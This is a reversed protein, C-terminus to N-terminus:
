VPLIHRPLLKPYPGKVEFPISLENLVTELANAYKDSRIVQPLMFFIKDGVSTVECVIHGEVIIVYDEIYDAVDGWDAFGSYNCIFTNKRAAKGTGSNNKEAYKMKNKAGSISDISEYYSLIEKLQSSSVSPDKQLLIQGRTMTGLKEMDWKLMTRDYDIFIQSLLDKHSYTLGISETPNHAIKAGIVPYKAPLVKDLMKATVVAFFSQVSANNQKIFRVIAKQRFSYIRYNADKVFPNFMGNIYDGYLMVPDKSESKYIPEEDSLMEYTPEDAEGPLLDEGPKRIGPADPEIGYRNKVYQYVNTMVWPQAGKGGCISHSINYYVTRGEYEVYCFHGNVEESCLDRARGDSPIVVVPADNPELIFGGDDDVALRKAFYPYRLIAENASRLLIEPDVEDRMTVRIRMSFRFHKESRYLRYTDVSYKM